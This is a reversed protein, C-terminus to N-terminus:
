QGASLSDIIRFRYFGVAGLQGGGMQSIEQANLWPNDRDDNVLPIHFDCAELCGTGVTYLRKGQKDEIRNMIVLAYGTNGLSDHAIYMDGPALDDVTVPDCNAALSRYNNNQMCFHLMKYFETDNAKRAPKPLLIPVGRNNYAPAGSLWASYDLPEGKDPQFGFAAERHRYRLFEALIRLPFNAETYQQGTWPIHIPRCVEDAEYMKKGKWHGVPKYRHWIPIHAIWNQYPTLESSDTYHYGDPLIFESEFTFITDKMSIFDYTQRYQHNLDQGATQAAVSGSILLIVAVAFRAATRLTFPTQQSSEHWSESM